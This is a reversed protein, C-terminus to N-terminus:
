WHDGFLGLGLARDIEEDSVKEGDLAAKVRDSLPVYQRERGERAMAVVERLAELGEDGGGDAFSRLREGADWFEREDRGLGEIRFKRGIELCSECDARPCEGCDSACHLRNSCVPGFLHALTLGCVIVGSAKIDAARKQNFSTLSMPAKRPDYLRARGFDTLKLSLYDRFNGPALLINGTHFDGHYLSPWRVRSKTSTTAPNTAAAPVTLDTVGHHLYALANCIELAFHWRLGLNLEARHNRVFASLDGGKALPLTLWMCESHLNLHHDLMAAIPVTVGSPQLKSLRTLFAMENEFEDTGRRVKPFKVVVIQERLADFFQSRAEEDDDIEACIKDAAKRPIALFTEGNAGEALPKIEHYSKQFHARSIGVMLDENSTPPTSHESHDSSNSSALRLQAVTSAISSMDDISVQSTM